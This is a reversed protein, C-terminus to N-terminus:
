VPSEVVESIAGDVKYGSVVPSGEQGFVGVKRGGGDDVMDSKTKMRVEMHRLPAMHGLLM